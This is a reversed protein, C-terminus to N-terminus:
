RQNQQNLENLLTAVENYSSVFLITQTYYQEQQPSQRVLKTDMEQIATQVM